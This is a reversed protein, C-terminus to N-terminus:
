CRFWQRSVSLMNSYYKSSYSKGPRFVTFPTTPILPFSGLLPTPSLGGPESFLSPLKIPQEPLRHPSSRVSRFELRGSERARLDHRRRKGATASLFEVFRPVDGTDLSECAQFALLAILAIMGTAATRRTEPSLHVIADRLTTSLPQGVRSSNTRADSPPM